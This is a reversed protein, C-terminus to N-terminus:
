FLVLCSLIFSYNILDYDFIVYVFTIGEIPPNQAYKKAKSNCIDLIMVWERVSAEISISRLTKHNRNISTCANRFIIKNKWEVSLSLSIFINFYFVFFLCVLYLRGSTKYTKSSSMLNEFTFMGGLLSLIDVRLSFSEFTALCSCYAYM